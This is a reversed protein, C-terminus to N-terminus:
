HTGHSCVVSAGERLCADIEFGIAQPGPNVFTVSADVRGGAPLMASATPAPSLYDHPPVDRAAITRGFRDQLTVRLLPLPLPSRGRNAISARVTIEHPTSGSVTAGLQRAEYARVDWRPVVPIGLVGYFTRVRPGISPLTALTGRYQNLIQGALLVVLALAGLFWGGSHREPAPELEFDAPPDPSEDAPPRERRRQPELSPDPATQAHVEWHPEPPPERTQAPAHDGPRESGDVDPEQDAPAADPGVWIEELTGAQPERHRALPPHEAPAERPPPGQPSPAPPPTPATPTPGSEQPATESLSDLANFVSRCRGCRVHGQAARLDATTVVLMLGCKPCTTYM